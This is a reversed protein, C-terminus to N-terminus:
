TTSKKFKRKRRSRNIQQHVQWKGNVRRYLYNLDKHLFWEWNLYDKGLWKGLKRELEMEKHPSYAMRLARKWLEKDKKAPEGWLPWNINTRGKHTQELEWASKSVQNGNGTAIDALSFAKIYMRCKNVQNIEKGTLSIKLMAEM